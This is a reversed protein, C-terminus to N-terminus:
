LKPRHTAQKTSSATNPTLLNTSLNDHLKKKDLANFIKEDQATKRAVAESAGVSILFMTMDVHGWASSAAIANNLTRSTYSTTELLYSVQSLQGKSAVQVLLSELEAKNVKKMDYFYTCIDYRKDELASSFVVIDYFRRKSKPFEDLMKFVDLQSGRWAGEYTKAFPFEDLQLISALTRLAPVNGFLALKGGIDELAKKKSDVAAKLKRKAITVNGDVLANYLEQQKKNM